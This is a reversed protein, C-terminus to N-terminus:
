VKRNIMQNRREILAGLPDNPFINQYAIQPTETQTTQPQENGIQVPADAVNVPAASQEEVPATGIVPAEGIIPRGTRQAEVFDQQELKTRNAYTREVGDAIGNFYGELNIKEEPPAKAYATSNPLFTERIKSNLDSPKVEDTNPVMIRSSTLYEILQEETVNPAYEGKFATPDDEAIQNILRILAQRKKPTPVGLNSGFFKDLKAAKAVREEPSMLELISKAFKPNMILRGIGWFAGLIGITALGGGLAGFGGVALSAGTVAGIGGLQLRRALFTSVDGYAIEGKARLLMMIKNFDDYHAKGKAGGGMIEVFREKAGPKSFGIADDFMQYNFIGTKMADADKIMLNEAAESGAKQFTAGPGEKILNKRLGVGFGETGAFNSLHKDIFNDGYVKSIMEDRNQETVQKIGLNTKLASFKERNIREFSNLFADTVTRGTLRKFLTDGEVNMKESSAKLDAATFVKGEPNKYEGKVNQTLEQQRIRSAETSKTAQGVKLEDQGLYFKLEKVDAEAGSKIVLNGMRNTLGSLAEAEGGQFGELAARTLLNKDYLRLNDSVKTPSQLAGTTDAFYKNSLNLQKAWEKMDEQVKELFADAEPKGKSALIAQYEDNLYKNKAIFDASYNKNGVRGLDIESGARLPALLEILSSNPNVAVEESFTQNLNRQLGLFQKPTIFTAEKNYAGLEAVEKIKTMLDSPIDSVGPTKLDESAKAIKIAAARMEDTPIINPNNMMDARNLLQSYNANSTNKFLRHNEMITPYIENSLVHSHYIPGFDHTLYQLMKTTAKTQQINRQKLISSSIVPVQGLTRPFGKVVGRFLGPGGLSAIEVANLPINQEVGAKAAAYAEKGNLGFLPKAITKVSKSLVPMLATGAINYYLANTMESLTATLGREYPSMQDIERDSLQSLDFMAAKALGDTYQDYEFLASGAGAGLVGGTISKLETRGGQSVTFRALKDANKSFFDSTNSFLKKTKKFKRGLTRDFINGIVKGFKSQSVRFNETEKFNEAAKILKKRDLFYPVTSGILDGALVYRFNTKGEPNRQQEADSIIKQRAQDRENAIDMVSSYGTLNKNQFHYDLQKVQADNLNAPNLQKKDILSQIRQLESKQQKNIEM